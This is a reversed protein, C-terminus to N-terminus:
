RQLCWLSRYVGSSGNGWPCLHAGAKTEQTLASSSDERMGDTHQLPRSHTGLQPCPHGASKKRHKSLMLCGRLVEQFEKKKLGHQM